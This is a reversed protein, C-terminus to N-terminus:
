EVQRLCVRPITNYPELPLNEVTSDVLCFYFPPHLSFSFFSPTWSSLGEFYVVLAEVRALGQVSSSSEERGQQRLQCQGLVEQQASETTYSWQFWPSFKDWLPYYNLHPASIEVIVRIYAFSDDQFAGHAQGKRNLRILWQYTHHTRLDNGNGNNMQWTNGQKEM